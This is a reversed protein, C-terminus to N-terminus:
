RGLRKRWEAEQKSWDAERQKRAAEQVLEWDAERQKRAAEQKDDESQQLERETKQKEVWDNAAHVLTTNFMVMVILMVGAIVALFLFKINFLKQM